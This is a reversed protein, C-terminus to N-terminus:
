FASASRDQRSSLRILNRGDEKAQYMATDARKLIEEQTDEHKCFLAVGISATCRHEIAAQTKKGQQVKLVYPKALADRIKRAANGAQTASEAESADLEGMIVVFEDGGYRAVTDIERVCNKLRAAAEILLLDGVDHGQTDNLLKFNDLDLFMLAGHLGSRKSSALAQSLRDHLLSRNPLKTLADYFALQHMQDEMQKRETIDRTISLIHPEGEIEIITASMLGYRVGGDKSRFRAEFNSVAGDKQLVHALRTRDEPNVWVNLETSTLGIVEDEAYGMTQTFGRNVSVYCGDDLRNINISDPSLYFAKRFKEESNKLADETRRRATVDTTVAFLGRTTGTEDLHPILEVELHRQTGNAYTHTRKYTTRHGDLVRDFYPKVERYPAEGIIESLHKGVISASTLGFFEAFRRNAFLCHLNNDYAISMSPVNDAILRLQAADDQQQVPERSNEM